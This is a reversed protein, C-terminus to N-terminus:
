VVERALRFGAPPEPALEPTGSILARGSTIVNQALQRWYQAIAVHVDTDPKMVFGFQPQTAIDAILEAPAGGFGCAVINPAYRHSSRDVLRKYPSAWATDAGPDSGSLLYVVPRLVKLNKAKLADIDPEIQDLLTEFANAYSAPGRATFWPSQSGAVVQELPLRTTVQDAFGLVSLRIAPAVDTARLLADHLQHVGDSLDGIYPGVEASEDVVVYVPQVGDAPKWM